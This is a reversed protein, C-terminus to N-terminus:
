KLTVAIPDAALGKGLTSKSTVVCEAKAGRLSSPVSAAIKTTKGKASLTGKDSTCKLTYSMDGAWGPQAPKRFSVRLKGDASTVKVGRPQSPTMRPIEYIAVTGSLEFSAIVLASGTPSEDEGVFLLGEPSVDGPNAGTVLNGAPESTNIYDVFVPATPTSADFLVVGGDRELGAAIWTKGYAKGVAVAEPEPGKKASRADVKKIAGSTTDWDANFYTPRRTAALQEFQDGSDWVQTMTDVGEVDTVPRWISISRAGYSYGVKVKTSSTVTASRPTAPAFQTVGLDKTLKAQASIAADASDAASSLKAEEDQAKTSDTGGLLCPYSRADGENATVLYTTGDDATLTAVADPQYMGQVNQTAVAVTGDNIGDLGKGADAHKKYGLGNISVVSQTELDITAIANNEQLTVFAFKEDDSVTLYEPELDQALSAGPGFVRGGQFVLSTARDNFSEFNITVAPKPKVGGVDIISVSGYPDTTQPLTGDAAKCYSSPEGENATLIYRGSPSFSVHDPLAGVELGDQAGKLLKGNTDTIFVKGNAQNNGGVAAAIAVLGNKTAVSQVGTAGKAALDISRVKKVREPRSIDVIDIQNTKGNTVFLRQSAPDYASIEAGALGSGSTWRGLFRLGATTAVDASVSSSSGVVALASSSGLATALLLMSLHKKRKM